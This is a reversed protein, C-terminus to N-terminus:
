SDKRIYEAQDLMILVKDGTKIFSPVKILCGNNLRAEKIYDTNGADKEIDETHEIVMSVIKPLELGAFMNKYVLATLTSSDQLYVNNEGLLSRKIEIDEDDEDRFLLYDGNRSIFKIEIKNLEPEKIDENVHFSYGPSEGNDFNFTDVKIFTEGDPAHCVEKKVVKHVQGKHLFFSEPRLDKATKM